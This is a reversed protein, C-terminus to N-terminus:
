LLNIRTRLFGRGRKSLLPFNLRNAEKFAKLAFPSDVSIGLVVANAKNLLAIKDRFTCLEKTSVSTFAGSFFLLVVRRGEKLVESLRV